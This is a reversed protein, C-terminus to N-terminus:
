DALERVARGGRPDKVEASPVGVMVAAGYEGVVAAKRQEHRRIEVMDRDSVDAYPGSRPSGAGDTVVVGCFWRDQRGFCELIGPQALIELDDPHAVVGLDTTRALADNEGIGDPVFVESSM